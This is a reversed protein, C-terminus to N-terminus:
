LDCGHRFDFDERLGVDQDRGLGGDALARHDIAAGPPEAPDVDEFAQEVLVVEIGPALVDRRQPRDHARRRRTPMFVAERDCDRVAEAEPAAPPQRDGVAYEGFWVAAHVVGLAVRASAQPGAACVHLERGAGAGEM